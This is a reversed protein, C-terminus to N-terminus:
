EWDDAEHNQLLGQPARLAAETRDLIRTAATRSRSVNDVALEGMRAMANVRATQADLNTKWENKM